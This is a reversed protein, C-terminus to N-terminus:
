KVHSPSLARDLHRWVAWRDTRIIRDLFSRSLNTDGDFEKMDNGTLDYFRKVGSKEDYSYIVNRDIAGVIKGQEIRVYLLRSSVEADALNRGLWDGPSEMGLLGLITPAIDLHNAQLRSIIPKKFLSPNSIICPVQIEELTLAIGHGFRFNSSVTEGHDGIVVILTSERLGEKELFDILTGICRDTYQLSNRYKNAITETGFPAMGDPSFYPHHPFITSYLAFFKRTKHEALWRGLSAVTQEEYAGWSWSRKNGTIQSADLQEDFSDVFYYTDSFGLDGSYFLATQYGAKSLVTALSPQPLPRKYLYRPNQHLNPLYDSYLVSYLAQDTKTITTFYHSFQIGTDALRFLNPTTERDVYHASTSEMLIIVINMGAAKRSMVSLESNLKLGPAILSESARIESDKQKVEATLERLLQEADVPKPAPSYYQIFHLIANRKLGYDYAGRCFFIWLLAIVATATLLLAWLRWRIALSPVRLLFRSFPRQIVFYSLLGATLFVIPVVSVYAAISDRMANLNDAARILDISLPTNYILSVQWSVVSFVVIASHLLFPAIRGLPIEIMPPSASGAFRLLFYLIAACTCVVMDGGILLPIQWIRIDPHAQEIFIFRWALYFKLSVLFILMGLASAIAKADNDTERSRFWHVIQNLM